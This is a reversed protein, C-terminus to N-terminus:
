AEKKYENLYFKKFGKADEILGYGGLWHGYRNFLLAKLAAPIGDRMEFESLGAAIYEDLMNGLMEDKDVSLDIWVREYDWFLAKNGSKYPNEKEGKYYRCFPLFDKKDM